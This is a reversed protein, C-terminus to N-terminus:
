EEHKMEREEHDIPNTLDVHDEPKNPDTTDVAAVNEKSKRYGLLGAGISLVVISQTMIDGHAHAFYEATGTLFGILGASMTLIGMTGSGSTKGDNNSCMQAFSFKNIDPM